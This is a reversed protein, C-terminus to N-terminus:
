YVEPALFHLAVLGEPFIMSVHYPEDRYVHINHVQSRNPLVFINEPHAVEVLTGSVLELRFPQFPRADIAKYLDELRM